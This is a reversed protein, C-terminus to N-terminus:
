SLNQYNEKFHGHFQFGSSTPNNPAKSWLSSDWIGRTFAIKGEQLGFETPLAYILSPLLGLDKFENFEHLEHSLKFNIDLLINQNPLYTISATETYETIKSCSLANLLVLPPVFLLLSCSSWNMTFGQLNIWSPNEDHDLWYQKNWQKVEFKLKNM